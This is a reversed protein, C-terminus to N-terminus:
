FLFLGITTLQLAAAGLRTGIDLAAGGARERLWDSFASQNEQDNFSESIEVEVGIDSLNGELQTLYDPLQEVINDVQRVLLPVILAALGAIVGIFLLMALGTAAGRSKIKLKDECFRVIPEVAFSLLFATLIWGIVSSASGYFWIAAYIGVGMLVANRIVRTSVDVYDDKNMLLIIRWM